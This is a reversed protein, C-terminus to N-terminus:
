PKARNVPKPVTKPQDEGGGRNIREGSQNPVDVTVIRTAIPRNSRVLEYLWISFEGFVGSIIREVGARVVACHHRIQGWLFNM